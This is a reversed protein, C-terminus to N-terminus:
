GAASIAGNPKGVLTDLVIKNFMARLLPVGIGDSSLIEPTIPTMQTFADDDYIDWAVLLKLLSDVLYTRSDDSDGFAPTIASPRYTLTLTVGGYEVTTQRTNRMLEALTIPM